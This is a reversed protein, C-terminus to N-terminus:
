GAAASRTRLPMFRRVAAGTRSPTGRRLNRLRAKLLNGLTILGLLRSPDTRDVVPLRTLGTETMRYVVARLPEDPYAVIGALLRALLASLLFPQNTFLGILLLVKAVMASFAGIAVAMGAPLLMRRDTTFDGLRPTPTGSTHTPPERTPRDM